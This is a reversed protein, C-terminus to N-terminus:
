SYLMPWVLLLPYIRVKLRKPLHPLSVKLSKLAIHLLGGPLVDCACPGHWGQHSDVLNGHNSGTYFHRIRLSGLAGCYILGTRRSSM